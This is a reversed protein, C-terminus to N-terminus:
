DPVFLRASARDRLALVRATAEIGDVDAEVDAREADGRPGAPPDLVPGLAGGTADM